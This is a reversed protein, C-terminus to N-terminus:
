ILGVGMLTESYFIIFIANKIVHFSQFGVIAWSQTYIYIYICEDQEHVYIYMVNVDM